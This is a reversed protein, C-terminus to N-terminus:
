YIHIFAQYIAFIPLLLWTIVLVMVIVIVILLVFGKVIIQFLRLFFSIARGAFDRQGFMPVFINRVWIWFGLSQEMEIIFNEARKLMELFGRTYWWVPFYLVTKIEDILVMLFIKGANIQAM